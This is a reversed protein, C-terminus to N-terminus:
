PEVIRATANAIRVLVPLPSPALPLDSSLSFSEEASFLRRANKREELRRMGLHSEVKDIRSYLNVIMLILVAALLVLFLGFCAICLLEQWGSSRKKSASGYEARTEARPAPLIGVGPKM